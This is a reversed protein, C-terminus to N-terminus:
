LDADEQTVRILETLSTLGKLFLRLAEGRLTSMGNKVAAEKIEQSNRKVMIMTRIADNVELIEYIATRGKYGTFNCKECGAAEYLGACAAANAEVLPGAEGFVDNGNKPTKMFNEIERALNDPIVEIKKKCSPCLLRLLRQAFVIEISSAALFPEIGMDILRTFASAADNTHLTSLVLHGTLASQIAINATEPDRIEGVMIIDPDQRLIHRLGSAFSLGIKANVNIQSIKPIQYEVPDEITIINKDPSTKSISNVFSYLTTTKGSGTPGTTLIMGHSKTLSQKVAPIFNEDIGVENIDYLKLSKDLLRLVVREGYLTPVVSVRVDVNRNSVKLEIRGDQPLRKEAIDLGAMVKIRAVLFAELGIPPETIDILSGDIRYRITFHTEYPEIHIDSANKRVAELLLSNILKIAPADSKIDVIDISGINKLNEYVDNEPEISDVTDQAKGISLEFLSNIKKILEAESIKIIEPTIEPIIERSNEASVASETAAPEPFVSVNSSIISDKSSSRCYSRLKMLCDNVADSKTNETIFLVYGGPSKVPLILNKKLYVSSFNKLLSLSDQEILGRYEM